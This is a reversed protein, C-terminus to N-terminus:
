VGPSRVCQRGAGSGGQHLPPLAHPRAWVGYPRRLRGPVSENRVRAQGYVEKEERATRTTGTANHLQNYALGVPKMDCNTKPTRMVAGREPQGILRVRSASPSRQLRITM